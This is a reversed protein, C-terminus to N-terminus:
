PPASREVNQYKLFTPYLLSFVLLVAFCDDRNDKGRTPVHAPAHELQATRVPANGWKEGRRVLQLVVGKGRLAGYFYM